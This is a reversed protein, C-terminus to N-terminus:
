GAFVVATSIPRGGPEPLDYDGRPENRLRGASVLSTSGGGDLNMATSCGLAAMLRALEALELGADSQSRGDCAVALLSRGAIGVAARPHRGRTIDSDFQHAARSFGEVDAGPAFCPREDRVLLPGAQLLDGRPEAPLEDRGAIRPVGGQVHLCARRDNWPSAFPVHGRIVGHTRVEGLPTGDPRSFFGGVLAERVGQGACWLELPQPRSLCVVRPEFSALDYRGVYITTSRGDVLVLRRRRVAPDATRIEPSGGRLLRTTM